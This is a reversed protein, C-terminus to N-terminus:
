FACPPYKYNFFDTPYAYWDPQWTSVACCKELAIRSSSQCNDGPWYGAVTPNKRLCRSMEDYSTISSNCCSLNRTVPYSTEGTGCPYQRLDCHKKAQEYWHGRVNRCCIYWPDSLPINLPIPPESVTNEPDDPPNAPAPSPPRPPIYIPPPDNVHGSPPYGGRGDTDVSRCPDNGLFAYLNVGGSEDAPDRSLWRGSSPNYYRFGYYLLGTEDDQYKTSFRYPNLSAMPGTARVLEGFPGYEYRATITSSTTDALASANGNGDFCTFASTSPSLIALLGGVGGARRLSGSLDLGWVYNRIVGKNTANLESQLNWGDCVFLNSVTTSWTSGNYNDVKKAVRRGKYDYAFGLGLKSATPTNTLSLMSILRNEADWTYAWRGDNTLNGDYDYLFVELTKTLFVAGTVSGNPGPPLIALNTVGQWIAASSNDISLEKWFYDGKRYTSNGNVTVTAGADASGTIELYAPVSRNTYQNLSNVSYSATRMNARSTDGGIGTSTRNGIDDFAYDFQRGAILTGDGWYNTGKTVQGLSDYGYRWYTSDGNTVAIRQNANNYGYTHRDLAVSSPNLNTIGTLRNLNDFGQKMTVRLSGTQKLAIQEVLTSNTLYSYTGSNTGDSIVSLRGATDYNNTVTNLATGNYKTINTTRRLANDYINEIAVLNMPSSAGSYSETLVNGADNYTLTCVTPGNSVTVLRGLRDYGNTIGPTVSDNYIITALEGAANYGYTANTGRAWLRTQLRGGATNTYVPGKGDDYVKSDLWGRYQNYNWTTVRTGTSSAFTTWNTMKTMRLQADYGYGVPYARSGYSRKLQGTPYYENTVVTGDTLINTTIRGVTDFINSTVQSSQGSGPQPSATGAVLNMANFYNTASGTRADTIISQRWHADYGYSLSTIQNGSSDKRTTSILQGYQYTNVACTGDMSFNTMYRYGGGAYATVNTSTVALGNNWTTSWNTLGNLSWETTSVLNSANNSLTKWGYVRTRVRVDAGNTSIDNTTFTIRDIDGKLSAVANSLDPHTTLGRATSSMALIRYAEQGQPNYTTMTTVGDPDSEKWLQGQNNYVNEATPTNTAGAYVTKCPRGVMDFYTKVWENTGGGSTLNVQLAVKRYTGGDSEVLNSYFTPAVATGSLSQLTGDRYYLQIRTGGDPAINTASRQNSVVVNTIVTEGGLANTQRMVRGLVDYKEQSLTIMPGNNTGYRNAVLIRSMGDFINSLTISNTSSGRQITTTARRKMSDYGYSTTVGDPDTVQDLGCCAFNYSAVRGALDVTSYNRAYVDNTAYIYIWQEVTAVEEGGELKKVTRSQLRGLNDTVTITRTGEAINWPDYDYDHWDFGWNPYPVSGNILFLGPDGRSEIATFNTATEEYSYVTATGDPNSVSHVRMRNATGDDYADYLITVTRLNASSGWAAGPVTCRQEETMNTSYVKRYTRAVEKLEWTGSVNAPLSTIEKRVVFPFMDGTDTVNEELTNDLVYAYTKLKFRESGISPETAADAPPPNNLFASYEHTKRGSSDYKFYKWNGDPYDVRCLRNSSGIAANTPYYTYLTTETAAGDGDVSQTVVYDSLAAIYLRTEIRQQLLTGGDSVQSIHNTIAVNTANTEYWTSETVADPRLLDWRRLQGNTSSYTFQFQRDTLNPRMETIWLRNSTTNGDPNKVAWTVYPANTGTTYFTNTGVPATVQNSSFVQLLYQYNTVPTVNVLGLPVKVQGISGDANTVVLVNREAGLLKLASPTALATSPEYAHLWIFGGDALMDVMGLYVRFDISGNAVIGGGLGGSSSSACACGGGGPPVTVSITVVLENTINTGSCTGTSRAHITVEGPGKADRILVGVGLSNTINTISCGTDGRDAWFTNTLSNEEACFTSYGFATLEDCSNSIRVPAANTPLVLLPSGDEKYWTKGGVSISAHFGTGCQAKADDTVYLLVSMATVVIVIYRPIWGLVSALWENLRGPNNPKM